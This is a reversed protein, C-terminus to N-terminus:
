RLLFTLSWILLLWVPIALLTANGIGRWLGRTCANASDLSTKVQPTPMWKRVALCQHYLVVRLSYKSGPRPRIPILDESYQLVELSPGNKPSCM